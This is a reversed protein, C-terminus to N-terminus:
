LIKAKRGPKRKTTMAGYYALSVADLPTIDVMDNSSAWGYGGDMGIKRKVAYLAADNLVDQNFHTIKSENLANMFRSCAAIMTRANCLIIAKNSVGHNKLEAILVEAGAKGDIVVVAFNDKREILFDALWAIGDKLDAQEILEVHPLTDDKYKVCAALSIKGDPSIKVGYSITGGDNPDDISCKNWLYDPIATKIISIPEWWGLRERAFGEPTMANLEEATWDESLRFGLSPNTEYWRSRDSVNGVDKVSWESWCLTDDKNDLANQRVRAFVTGPSNPSPPTGTYIIQRNGSPAAAMTPLMAEMQEDTLEQAEDFVVLDKTFGRAAGRSRASFEILGGNILEIAEQGNTRRIIKVMDCVEPHKPDTFFTALRKFAKAVTKVAHATHLINEGLVCLGYLERMELIANKGNQRPVSLGCTTATFKDQKNRGLWLNLIDQQWPDPVMNFDAAFEGADKGDTYEYTPNHQIQPKQNGIKATTCSSM